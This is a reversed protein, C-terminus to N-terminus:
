GDKVELAKTIKTHIKNAINPECNGEDTDMWKLIRRLVSKEILVFGKTLRKHNALEKEAKDALNLFESNSRLLMKNDALTEDSFREVDRLPRVAQLVREGWDGSFGAGRRAADALFDALELTAQIARRTYELDKETSM